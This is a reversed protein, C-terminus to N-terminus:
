KKPADAKMAGGDKKMADDCKKMMPDDKKADKNKSMWDKCEQTTPAKDAAKKDQAVAPAAVLALAVSIALAQLKM